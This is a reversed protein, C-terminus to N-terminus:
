CLSSPLESPCSIGRKPLPHLISLASSNSMLLMEKRMLVLILGSHSMWVWVDADLHSSDQVWSCNQELWLLVPDCCFPLLLVPYGVEIGSTVSLQQLLLFCLCLHYRHTNCVLKAEQFHKRTLTFTFSERLLSHLFQLSLVEATILKSAGGPVLLSQKLHPPSRCSGSCGLLELELFLYLM